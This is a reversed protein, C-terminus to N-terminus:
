VQINSDRERANDDLQLLRPDRVHLGHARARDDLHARGPRRFSDPPWRCPAVELRQWRAKIEIRPTHPRCRLELCLPSDSSDPVAEDEPKLSRDYKFCKKDSQEFLEM